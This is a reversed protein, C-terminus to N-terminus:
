NVDCAHTINSPNSPQLGNFQVLVLEYTVITGAITLVLSRTISFFKMGTLGINDTTVQMLFRVVENSYSSASVSYLIPAPLLSEDHVAAACLSITSARTLLFGFSFCFYITTMISPFPNFSNLLQICIFWLNTGFSLVVIGSIYTDVQRTLSALRNYDTRAEAWWWEPMAKERISYLRNNLQRFQDVLATSILILFLDMFNWSFTSLLNSSQVAIGKWLTYVTKNFVHPFQSQFYTAAIDTDGRLSACTVAGLYGALISLAHEIMAPIMVVATIIKFRAAMNLKAVRRHRPALEREFREWSTAFSPWNMALRFFLLNTMFTTGLFMLRTMRSATIGNELIRLLSCAVLTISILLTICAYFIKFSRWTFRLDSADSKSVQSVPFLSFCQALKIIPRLAAHLSDTTKVFNGGTTLVPTTMESILEETKLNEYRGIQPDRNVAKLQLTPSFSQRCLTWALTPRRRTDSQRGELANSDM